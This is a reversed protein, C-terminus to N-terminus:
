PVSPGGAEPAAAKPMPEPASVDVTRPAAPPLDVVIDPVTHAYARELADVFRRDLPNDRFHAHFHPGAVIWYRRGPETRFVDCAIDFFEEFHGQGIELRMRHFMIWMNIFLHQKDFQPGICALLEDDKMAMDFIQLQMQRAAQEVSLRTQRVELTTSVAVGVLAMGALLSSVAGYADGVDGLLPWNLDSKSAVNLALPSLAILALSLSVLLLRLGHTSWRNQVYM